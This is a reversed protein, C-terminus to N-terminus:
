VLCQLGPHCSLSMWSRPLVQSVNTRVLGLSVSSHFVGWCGGCGDSWVDGLPYSVSKQYKLSFVIPDYKAFFFFNTIYMLNM